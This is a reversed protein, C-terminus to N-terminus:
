IEAVASEGVESVGPCDAEAVSVTLGAVPKLETTDSVQLTVGADVTGGVHLKAGLEKAFPEPVEVRV